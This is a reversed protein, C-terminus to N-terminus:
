SFACRAKSCSFSSDRSKPPPPVAESTESQSGECFIQVSFKEAMDAVDSAPLDRRASADQSDIKPTVAKTSLFNVVIPAQIAFNVNQPVSGLQMMFIANLMGEVVGVVNGSM